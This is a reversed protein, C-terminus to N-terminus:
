LRSSHTASIMLSHIRSFYSTACTESPPILKHKSPCGYRGFSFQVSQSASFNPELLTLYPYRRFLFHSLRHKFSSELLNESNPMPRFFLVTVASKMELAVLNNRHEMPHFQQLFYYITLIVLLSGFYSTLLYPSASIPLTQILDSFVCRVAKLPVHQTKRGHSTTSFHYNYSKRHM